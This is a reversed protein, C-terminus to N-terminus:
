NYYLKKFYKISEYLDKESNHVEFTATKNYNYKKLLNVINKWKIKGKGIPLHEDREGHNDHIHIHEINNDFYSFFKYITKMKGSIFAHGIDFHVKLDPVKDLVFKYYEFKEEGNELMLRIDNKKAYDALLRLNKVYNNLAIRYKKNKLIISSPIQFHFNLLGIGLTKATTIDLKAQVLWARRVEEYTSSLDYWWATHGIPKDRFKELLKRISSKNKILIRFDTPPEIAIEVFDFNHKIAKNIELLINGGPYTM